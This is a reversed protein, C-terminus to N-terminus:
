RGENRPPAKPHEVPEKPVAPVRSVLGHLVTRFHALVSAEQPRNVLDRLEAPDLRIDYLEETGDGNRIYEYTSDMLSYMEPGWNAPYWPERDSGRSVSSFITDGVTDQGPGVSDSMSWFRSLSRGGIGERAPNVGALHLLTAGVDRLSVVQNVRAKPDHGPRPDDVILPVHVTQMYLSNPHNYLNHEGLQEGHDGAIVVVTNDLVGRQKLVALIRGVQEDEHTIAAAYGAAHAHREAPDMKWKDTVYAGSGNLLDAFHTFNDWHSGPPMARKVSDPPFYPEHADFYNLFAFWPHDGKGHKREWGLFEDTVKRADKRNLLEQYGIIRRLKSSGALRRGLSTCLIMQGVSIPFDEYVLFGRALGTAAVTFTLNGVFGATLYGHRALAEAVVPHQPPLARMWEGGQSREGWLRIPWAGTFMSAHSPLTWPSAAIAKTFNVSSAALSDMVPTHAPPFDSAAGSPDVFDLSAGRVTDLIILLVNPAGAEAMPLGTMWYRNWVWENWEMRATMGGALLLGVVAAAPMLRRHRPPRKVMRHVQVGVGIALVIIALAYLREPLLGLELACLGAFTGVVVSRNRAHPWRRGLALLVGAAILFYLIDALPTMWVFDRGLRVVVHGFPALLVPIEEILGTWVGAAVAMLVIRGWSLPGTEAPTTEAPRSRPVAQKRAPEKKANKANGPAGRSPKRKPSSGSAKRPKRRRSM